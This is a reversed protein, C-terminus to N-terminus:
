GGFHDNILQFMREGNLVQTAEFHLEFGRIHQVVKKDRGTVKDVHVLVWNKKGASGLRTGRRGELESKMQGLYPGFRGPPLPHPNGHRWVVIGSDTDPLVYICNIILFMKM